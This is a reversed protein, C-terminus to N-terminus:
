PDIATVANPKDAPFAAMLAGKVRPWVDISGRTQDASDDERHLEVSYRKNCEPSSPIQTLRVQWPPRMANLASLLLAHSARTEITGIPVFDTADAAM